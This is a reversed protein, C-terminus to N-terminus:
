YYWEFLIKRLFINVVAMDMKCLDQIVLFPVISFQLIDEPLTLLQEM